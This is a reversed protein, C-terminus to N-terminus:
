RYSAEGPADAERVFVVRDSLAFNLLGCAAIALVNAPIAPLGLAEVFVPMLALNGGLSVLGNSGAFMGFAVLVRRGVPRRDRWTWRLHWWFNHALAVAVALATALLYNVGALHVLASLVALQVGIGAVGVANFRTFRVLGPM